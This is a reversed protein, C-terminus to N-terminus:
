KFVPLTLLEPGIQLDWGVPMRVVIDNEGVAEGAAAVVGGGADDTAREGVIAEGNQAKVECTQTVALSLKSVGVEGGIHFVQDTCGGPEGLVM